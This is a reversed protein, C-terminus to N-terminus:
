TKNQPFIKKKPLNPVCKATELYHTENNLKPDEMLKKALFICQAKTLPWVKTEKKEYLGPSLISYM